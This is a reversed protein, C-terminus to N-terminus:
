SPSLSLIDAHLKNLAKVIAPKIIEITTEHFIINSSGVTNAKNVAQPIQRISENGLRFIYHKICHAIICSRDDPIYLYPIDVNEGIYDDLNDKLKGIFNAFITFVTKMVVDASVVDQYIFRYIGKNFLVEDEEYESFESQLRIATTCFDFNTNDTILGNSKIVEGVINMTRGKGIVAVVSKNIYKGISSDELTINLPNDFNFKHTIDYKFIHPKCESSIILSNLRNEVFETFIKLDNTTIKAVLRTTEYMKFLIFRISNTFEVPWSDIHLEALHTPVNVKINSTIKLTNAINEYDLVSDIVKVKM